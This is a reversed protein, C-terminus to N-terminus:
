VCIEFFGTCKRTGYLFFLAGCITSELASPPSSLDSVPGMESREAFVTKSCNILTDESTVNCQSLMMTNDLTDPDGESCLAKQDSFFITQVSLLLLFRCLKSM